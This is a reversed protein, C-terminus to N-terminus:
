KFTNTDYRNKIKPKMFKKKKKPRIEDWEVHGYLKWDYGRELAYTVFKVLDFKHLDYKLKVTKKKWPIFSEVYTTEVFSLKSAKFLVLFRKVTEKPENFLVVGKFGYDDVLYLKNNYRSLLSQYLELKM